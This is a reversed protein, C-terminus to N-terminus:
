FNRSFVNKTSNLYESPTSARTILFAFQLKAFLLFDRPFEKREHLNLKLLSFSSNEQSKEEGVKWGVPKCSSSPSRQSPSSSIAPQKDHSSLKGPSHVGPRIAYCIRSISVCDPYNLPFISSSSQSVFNSEASFQFYKVEICNEIPVHSPSGYHIPFHHARSIKSRHRKRGEGEVCMEFM